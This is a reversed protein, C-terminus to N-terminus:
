RMRSDPIGLQIRYKSVTRRAVQFGQEQLLQVLKEDTLPQRKDEGDVLEKLANLINRVSVKDGNQKASLSFFWRLPLTGQQTQVYKSNSVRSITSIDLEALSAVDELRMPRLKSEDGTLFYTRQWKIIAKMTKLMSERRQAMATLFLQASAVQGRLYRVAEQDAKTVTPIDLAVDMDESLVLEPLDAENLSLHIRGTEDVRVLFDPTVTTANETPDNGISGGPRPTLRRISHQLEETQELTLRMRSQIRDWRQHSFDNWYRQLVKLLQDRREGTFNRRVQLVLCEQLSRAGVGAPEMQQVVHTLLHEVERATAILGLFIDLEDAVQQMTERMFGDEELSGIMYRVIERERDTLKYERIQAALMNYITQTTDGVERRFEEERAGNNARPLDDGDDYSDEASTTTSSDPKPEPAVDAGGNRTELWQNDELEKYIRDRLAELPLETLQAALVQQPSLLQQQGQVQISSQGQGTKSKSM